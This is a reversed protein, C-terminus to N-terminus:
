LYLRARSTKRRDSWEGFKRAIKLKRVRSDKIKQLRRSGGGDSRKKLGRLHFNRRARARARYLAKHHFRVNGSFSVHLLLLPTAALFCRLCCPFTNLLHRNVYFAWLSFHKLLNSTAWQFFLFVTNRHLKKRIKASRKCQGRKVGLGRLIKKEVWASMM